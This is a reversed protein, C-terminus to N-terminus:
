YPLDTNIDLTITLTDAETIVYKRKLHDNFQKIIHFLGANLSNRIMKQSPLLVSTEATTLALNQIRVTHIDAHAGRQSRYVQSQPGKFQTSPKIFGEASVFSLPSERGSPSPILSSRPPPEGHYNYLEGHLYLIIFQRSTTTTELHFLYTM